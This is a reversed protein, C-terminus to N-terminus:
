DEKKILAIRANNAEECSTFVTEGWTYYDWFNTNHYRLCPTVGTKTITFFKVEDSQVEKTHRDIYFLLSGPKCPLVVSVPAETHILYDTCNEVGVGGLRACVKYHICTACDFKKCM